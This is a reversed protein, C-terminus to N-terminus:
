EPDELDPGGAATGPLYPAATSVTAGGPLLGPDLAPSPPQLWKPEVPFVAPPPPWAIGTPDIQHQPRPTLDGEAYPSRDVAGFRKITELGKRICARLVTAVREDTREAEKIIDEYEDLTLYLLVKKRAQSRQALAKERNTLEALRDPTTGLNRPPRGRRKPADM